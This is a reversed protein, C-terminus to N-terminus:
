YFYKGKTAERGTHYVVAFLKYQRQKTNYKPRAENSLVSKFFISLLILEYFNLIRERSFIPEAFNFGGGGCFFGSFAPPPSYLINSCFSVFHLQVKPIELDVSFDVPKMM